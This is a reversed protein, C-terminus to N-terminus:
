RHLSLRSMVDRLRELNISLDGEWETNDQRNQFSAYSPGVPPIEIELDIGHTHWEFQIGGEATPVVTPALTDKGMVRDLTRLATSFAGLDMPRAGYSDWNSPLALVGAMAKLTPFLWAPEDDERQLIFYIGREPLEVIVQDPQPLSITPWDRPPVYVGATRWAADTVVDRALATPM